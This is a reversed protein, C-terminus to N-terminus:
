RSRLRFERCLAAMDDVNTSATLAYVSFRDSHRRVVDLTSLGISGTAGLLTLHRKAAQITM